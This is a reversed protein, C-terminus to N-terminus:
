RKTATTAQDSPVPQAPLPPGSADFAFPNSPTLPAPIATTAPELPPPPPLLTSASIPAPIIEVPTRLELTPIKSASAGHPGPAGPGEHDPAPVVPAPVKSGTQSSFVEDDSENDDSLISDAAEKKDFTIEAEEHHTSDAARTIEKEVPPLSPSATPPTPATHSFQKAPQSAANTPTPAPALVVQSCHPCRVHRGLM